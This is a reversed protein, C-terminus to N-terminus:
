NKNLGSSGFHGLIGYLVPTSIQELCEQQSINDELFRYFIQSFVFYCNEMPYSKLGSSYYEFSTSAM